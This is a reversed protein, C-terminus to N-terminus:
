VVLSNTPRHPDYRMDVRSGPLYTDKRSLQEGDLRQVTEYDMGGVTYCYSLLENGDADRSIDLVTADGLRGSQLLLARRAIEPDPKPRRFRGLFSM